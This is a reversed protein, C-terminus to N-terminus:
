PNAASRERLEKEAEDYKREATLIQVLQLRRNSDKPNDNALKSALAEAAKLDGKRLLAELKLQNIRAEDSAALAAP